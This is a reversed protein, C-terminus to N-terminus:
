SVADTEPIELALFCGGVGRALSESAIGAALWTFSSGTPSEPVFADNLSVCWSLSFPFGSFEDNDEVIEPLLGCMLEALRASAEAVSLDKVVGM